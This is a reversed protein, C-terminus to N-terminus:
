TRIELYKSYRYALTSNPHEFNAEKISEKDRNYSINARCIIYVIILLLGKADEYRFYAKGGYTTPKISENKILVASLHPKMIGPHNRLASANLHSILHAEFEQNNEARRFIAYDM